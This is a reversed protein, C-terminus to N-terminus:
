SNTEEKFNLIIKGYEGSTADEYAQEYSTYPYIKSIIPDVNLDEKMLYDISKIFDGPLNYIISGLISIEKRVVQIVPITAEAPLGIAIMTGGPKVLDIGQEFSTRVGAAEIVIDFVKGDVENPLMTQVGPYSSKVKELKDPNIDIGTIQAGHYAALTMALMGETGCGIIGITTDKSIEVKSLAHVIVAFPEILVAREDSLKDPIPLIYKDTITFEESFGGDANVGLVIKNVCINTKGKRCFECEGCYTNPLVVVRTGISYKAEAGAEVITGILEHGPCVPYVAHALKGRFVSLDSGCIGGYITRIKVEKDQLQRNSPVERLTLEGPKNIVLGLM